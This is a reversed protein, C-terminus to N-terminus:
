PKEKTKATIPLDLATDTGNKGSGNTDLAPRNLTLSDRRMVMTREFAEQPVPSPYPGSSVKALSQTTSFTRATEYARLNKRKARNIFLGLPASGALASVTGRVADEDTRGLGVVQVVYDTAPALILPDAFSCSPADIIVMDARSRLTKILGTMQTSAIFDIPNDSAAGSFLVFLNPDESPTLAENLGIRGALVETLGAPPAATFFTEQTPRRLNADVLIVRKGGRALSRAFEAATVSKGEGPLASTILIVRCQGPLSQGLVRLLNAQTLSYAEAVPPPLQGQRIGAIEARSLKPLAGLLLGAGLREVQDDRRIKRDTQEILLITVFSLFLGLLTGVVLNLLLNPKYPLDPAIAAQTIQVNGTMKSKELRSADLASQLSTFRATALDAERALETTQAGMQPLSSMQNRAEDELKVAANLRAQTFAAVVQAQKYDQYLSNQVPLSPTQLTAAIAKALRQKLDAIRADLPALIGPYAPTVKTAQDARDMEAQTLQTQLSLVLNNDSVGGSARIAQNMGKLQAGLTKLRAQISSLDQQANAADAERAQLKEIAAREQDPASVVHHSNQYAVQKRLAANMQAQAAKTQVELTSVTQQVDKQAMENKWQVFSQVVANGISIAQNRDGADVSVNILNSDKPNTVAIARELQSADMTPTQSSDGTLLSRNKLWDLSREALAPTELMGIQTEVTESIPAVYSPDQPGMKGQMPRQILVMQAQARWAPRMLHSVLFAAGICAALILVILWKRRWLAAGVDALGSEDPARYNQIENM